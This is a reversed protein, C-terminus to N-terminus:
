KFRMINEILPQALEENEPLYWLSVARPKFDHVTIIKYGSDGSAEQITKSSIGCIIPDTFNPISKEFILNETFHISNLRKNIYEQLLELWYAYNQPLVFSMDSLERLSINNSLALPNDKKVWITLIEDYIHYSSLSKRLSEDLSDDYEIIFDVTENLLCDTSSNVANKDYTLTQYEIMNPANYKDFVIWLPYSHFSLINTKSYKQKSLTNSSLENTAENIIDCITNAYELLRRGNKNLYLRGQSRNFLQCGLEDELGSLTRSLASVSVYLLESAKRLNETEAIVKFQQLQRSDM